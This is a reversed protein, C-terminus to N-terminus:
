APTRKPLAPAILLFYAMAAYVLLLGAKLALVGAGTVPQSGVLLVATFVIATVLGYKILPYDFHHVRNSFYYTPLLLVAYTITTVWASAIAGFQPILLLNLAASLVASFGTLLPIYGTKKHYFLPSSFFYFYGLLLYGLLVPGVFPIAPDYNSPLVLKIFDPALLIGLLCIGGMLGIYLSVVRVMKKEPEHDNIMMRYFYPMWAHNIAIVLVQMAMGLNYGLTYVGVEALSVFRQLIVRDLTHLAWSFVNHPVLPLGYLLAKRMYGWNLRPSFWDRALLAMLIVGMIVVSILLSLMKGTVGMRLWVVLVLACVVNFGFNGWQSLMFSRAQQRAQYVVMPYQIWIRFYATWLMIRVLPHFPIADGMVALWLPAGFVDLLLTVIFGSVINFGVVSTIYSKLEDINNVYDFYHRAVSGQMGLLLVWVLLNVYASLVGSVGYDSPTLFYTWLPILLFETARQLVNGTIYVSANAILKNARVRQWQERVWAATSM